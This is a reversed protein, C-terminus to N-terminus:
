NKKLTECIYFHVEHGKLRKYESKFYADPTEIKHDLLGRKIFDQEIKRMLPLVNGGYDSLYKMFAIIPRINTFNESDKIKKLYLKNLRTTNDM